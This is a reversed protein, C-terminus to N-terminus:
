KLFDLQQKPEAQAIHLTTQRLILGSPDESVFHRAEPYFLLVEKLRTMFRTKFNRTAQENKKKLEIESIDGHEISRGFGAGFQAQLLVWPIKVEPRGRVKLMFMRYTLWTYIDMALPSQRLAQLVRMDIPVPSRTVEDFFDQTLTLESDWLSREEPKKANWFLFARKAILVNEVGFEDDRDGSLTIMSSFLRQAQKKLSAIYRGDNAMQLKDLFESQSRGLSLVPCKTRVAETCIWATLTRPVSGYPIGIHPPAMISLTVLGNSREFYQSKPDTHPLTAQVLARAMYGLTGAEKADEIDVAISEAIMQHIRRKEQSM